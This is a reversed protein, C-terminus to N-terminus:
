HGRRVYLIAAGEPVAAVVVPFEKGHRTVTRGSIIGVASGFV